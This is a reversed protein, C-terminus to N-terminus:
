VNPAAQLMKKVDMGGFSGSSMLLLTTNDWPQELIWDALDNTNTYVTLDDRKFGNRVDDATIAPLKKIALTHADFCVVAVDAADMSAKYQQLFEKNLSSYTHLEMVAVLKRGAFQEKVATTTAKLKSPSHAFDRYVTLNRSLDEMVFELRRAAGTFDSIANYFDDDTIGLQNCVNRAGEINQMNHQGFVNLRYKKGEHTIITQKGDAAFQPTCYPVKMVSADSYLAIQRLISDELNYVLKGRKEITDVFLAFQAAYNEFTPFVNIHDWAIGTILAINPKYLHFKPVPELASSLYEDGEIVVLRNNDTLQVTLDFGEVKSGVLYDFKKGLKRLVHMLMSTITTKGHSGAIVVRTKNKVREAVFAPFSYIKLNLEKARVLEPNDAKAHMGLVVADLGDHLKEPFWGTQEPLIGENKLASLAPEFIEDDSGTVKHGDRRLSIALNHMVSGGVAIFHINM